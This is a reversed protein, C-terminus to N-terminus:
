HFIIKNGITIHHVIPIGQLRRPECAIKKAFLCAFVVVDLVVTCSSFSTGRSLTAPHCRPLPHLWLKSIASARYQLITLTFTYILHM